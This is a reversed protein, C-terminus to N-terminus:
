EIVEAELIEEEAIQEPIPKFLDELFGIIWSEADEKNEWSRGSPHTPQFLFPAGLENPVENDWARIANAEDIEYRYRDTTM